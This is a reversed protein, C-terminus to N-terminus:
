SRESLLSLFRLSVKTYAALNEHRFHPVTWETPSVLSQECMDAVSFCVFCTLNPLPSHASLQIEFLLLHSFYIM